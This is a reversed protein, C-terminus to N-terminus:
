GQVLVELQCLLKNSELCHGRWAWICGDSQCFPMRGEVADTFAKIKAKSAEVDDFRLEHEFFGAKSIHFIRAEEDSIDAYDRDPLWCDNVNISIIAFFRPITALAVKKQIGTGCWEGAVVIEHLLGAEPNLKRFRNIIRDRLVLLTRIPIAAVFAAFGANEENGPVLDKRNRSQLRIIDSDPSFVIDAHTGHLKVSGTLHISPAPRLYNAAYLFDTLKFIKPYLTTPEGRESRSPSVEEKTVGEDLSISEMKTTLSTSKARSM